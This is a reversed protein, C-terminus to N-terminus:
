RAVPRMSPIHFGRCQLPFCHADATSAPTITKIPAHPHFRQFAFRPYRVVTWIGPSQMPKLLSPRVTPAGRGKLRKGAIIAFPCLPYSNRKSIRGAPSGLRSRRDSHPIDSERFATRLRDIESSPKDLASPNRLVLDLDSGEHAKGSIRSGYAWVQTLLFSPAFFPVYTKKIEPDLFLEHPKM